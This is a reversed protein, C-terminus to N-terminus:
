RTNHCPEDPGDIKSMSGSGIELKPGERFISGLGKLFRRDRASRSGLRPDSGDSAVFMKM